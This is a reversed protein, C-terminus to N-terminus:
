QSSALQHARALLASVLDAAVDLQVAVERIRGVEAPSFDRDAAALEVLVKVADARMHPDFRAKLVATAPEVPLASLRAIDEGLAACVAEVDADDMGLVLSLEQRVRLREEDTYQGDAYAVRALLTTVATVTEVSRHEANPMRAQIVGLLWADLDDSLTTM